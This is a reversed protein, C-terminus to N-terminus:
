NLTELLTAEIRLASNPEIKWAAFGAEGYAKSPPVDMLRKEGIAMGRVCEDLGSLAQGAGVEFALEGEWVVRDDKADMLRLAFKPRVGDGVVGEGTGAKETRYRLGESLTVWPAPTPSPAPTPTAVVPAAQPKKGSCGDGCGTLLVAAVLLAFGRAGWPRRGEMLDMGDVCGGPFGM